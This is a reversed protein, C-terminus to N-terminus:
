AVTPAVGVLHTAQAPTPLQGWFQLWPTADARHGQRLMRLTKLATYGMM